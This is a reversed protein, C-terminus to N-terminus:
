LGPLEPQEESAARRKAIREDQRSLLYWWETGDDRISKKAGIEHLLQRIDDDSFGGIPASLAEFSRDIHSRHNLMETLMSKVVESSRNQLLFMERNHQFQRAQLLWNFFGTGLIGIIVGCLAWAADSMM